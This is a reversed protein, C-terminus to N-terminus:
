PFLERPLIPGLLGLMLAAVTSRLGNAVTSDTTAAHAERLFQFETTPSTGIRVFYNDLIILLSSLVLVVLVGGLLGGVVDDLLANRSIAMDAGAVQFLLAGATVLLVFSAGFALFTSYSISYTPAQDHLWGGLPGALYAALLFSVLLAGISTLQRIAGRFFGVVFGGAILLILVLDVAM